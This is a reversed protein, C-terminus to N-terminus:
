VGIEVFYGFQATAYIDNWVPAYGWMHLYDEDFPQPPNLNRWFENPEGVEWSEFQGPPASGDALGNWFVTGEEAGGTWIWTGESAADSGGLWGGTNLASNAMLDYLYQNEEASTVTALYTEGPVAAANTEAQPRTYFGGVYLYENTGAIDITIDHTAGDTAQLSVIDALHQSATLAQVQPDMNNLTYTWDGDADIVLSGHSGPLPDTSDHVIFSAVQGDPDSISLTGTDTLDFEEKVSGTDDGAIVALDDVGNIRLTVSATSLAGKGLQMTYTFSDTEWGVGQDSSQPDESGVLSEFSPPPTYVLSGDNWTVTGGKDTTISVLPAAGLGYFSKAAGGHDNALLDAINITLGTDENGVLFGTSVDYSDDKAQPLKAANEEHKAVATESKAM